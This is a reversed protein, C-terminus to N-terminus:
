AITPLTLHTYSVAAYSIDPRTSKELFNLKGIVSRYDWQYDFPPGNADPGILVTSQAPIPRAKAQPMITGSEDILSLDRLISDILHPQALYFSGDDKREVAVGLYDTISGQDEINFITRMDKLDKKLMQGDPAFLIGDDTYVIFISRGRYFVCENISSQTFGLKLLGERLYM